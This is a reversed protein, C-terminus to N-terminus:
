PSMLSHRGVQQTEVYDFIGADMARKRAAEAKARLEETSFLAKSAITRADADVTGLLKSERALHRPPAAETPLKGLRELAMEEPIIQEM